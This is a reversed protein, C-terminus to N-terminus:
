SVKEGCNPCHKAWLPGIVMGCKRCRWFCHHFIGYVVVTAIALYGFVSKTTIAMLLMLLVFVGLILICIKKATKQKM